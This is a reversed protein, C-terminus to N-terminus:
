LMHFVADAVANYVNGSAVKVPFCQRAIWSCLVARAHQKTTPREKWFVFNDKESSAENSKKQKVSAFRLRLQKRQSAVLEEFPMRTFLRATKWSKLLLM